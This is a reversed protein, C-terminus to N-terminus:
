LRFINIIGALIHTKPGLGLSFIVPVANILQEKILDRMSLGGAGRPFYHNSLLIINFCIFFILLRNGSALTNYTNIIQNCSDCANLLLFFRELCLRLACPEKKLTILVNLIITIKDVKLSVLRLMLM